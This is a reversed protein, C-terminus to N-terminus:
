EKPEEIYRSRHRKPRYGVQELVIKTPEPLIVYVSHSDLGIANAIHPLVLLVGESTITALTSLIIPKSKPTPM